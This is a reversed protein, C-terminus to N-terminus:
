RKGPPKLPRAAAKADYSEVGEKTAKARDARKQQPNRHETEPGFHRRLLDPYVGRDGAM